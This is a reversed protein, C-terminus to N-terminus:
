RRVPGTMSSTPALRALYQVPKGNEDKDEQIRYMEMVPVSFGEQAFDFEYIGTESATVSFWDEDEQMQLSGRGDSGMEYPQAGDKLMQIFDPQGEDGAEKGAGKDDEPGGAPFMDEDPPLIKGQIDLSYPIISPEPKQDNNMLGKNLFYNNMGVDNKNSVKVIYQTGPSASFGLSEGDSYSGKNAYFAPDIKTEGSLLRDLIAQQEESPLTNMDPPFIQDAIYVSVSTDVGPIDSLNISIAQPEKVSFRYFDDEGNEGDLYNTEGKNSFPLEVDIPKVISSEADPLGASKEVQLKFNSLARGSDDYSGNVDKVGFFLTGSFPATFLKGEKKGERVKNVDALMKDNNSYLQLMLKYDFQAAGDLVFQLSEGKQIDTKYWKEEYPKLLNAKLELKGKVSVPVADSMLEQKSWTQNVIDPIKKVNFQLAAAPNILGNGYKVDFGKDGLDEATHELIYEVQYPTLKPYKSLLLSAAGTVMPAAMSTGSLKRYSSKREYEYITSYIEDGPAVVDVSTGYTSFSSLKKEKNVSGVSIVGEYAAPYNLTDDGANGAAAVITVNKELAKKIADEILPSPMPSGLSMNIVKAGKDVAYLIGQAISFDSAGYSRDFVDIPLIKAKPNVGYGGIGNGKDAAIIGAVHTGHFDPTGQNMPTVANYSPLLRGKLDPHNVDIGQDIVAVTVPNNGALAQAKDLHLQDIQYQEAIKPDGVSLPKYVASPTVALVNSFKRYKEITQDLNKKDRIKVVSYHLDSFQKILTGGAMRHESPSLPKTFKIVLTDDSLASDPVTDPNKSSGWPHLQLAPIGSFGNFGEISASGQGAYASTAILSVGVTLLSARRIWKKM